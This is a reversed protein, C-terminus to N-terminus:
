LLVEVKITKTKYDKFNEFFIKKEKIEKGEILIGRVEVGNGSFNNVEIEFTLDDKKYTISYKNWEKPVCPDIEFYEAYVRLGLIHKIGAQYMWGASGTYWSWGARGEHPTVSYVDGCFM